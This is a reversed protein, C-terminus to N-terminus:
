TESKSQLRCSRPQFAWSLDFDKGEAWLDEFWLDCKMIGRASFCYVSSKHQSLYALILASAGIVQAFTHCESRQRRFKSPGSSQSTVLTTQVHLTMAVCSYWQCRKDPRVWSSSSFLLFKSSFALLPLWRSLCSRFWALNRTSIHSTYLISGEFHTWVDLLVSRICWFWPQHGRIESPM